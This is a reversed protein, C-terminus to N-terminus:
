FQSTKRVEKKKKGRGMGFLLTAPPFLVLMKGTWPYGIMNKEVGLTLGAISFFELGPFQLM